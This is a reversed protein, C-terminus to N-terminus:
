GDVPERIHELGSWIIAARADDSVAFFSRAPVRGDHHVAAPLVSGKKDFTQNSDVVASEDDWDAFTRGAM